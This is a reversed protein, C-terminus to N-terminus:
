LRASLPLERFLPAYRGRGSSGRWWGMNAHLCNRHPPPAPLQSFFILLFFHNSNNRKALHGTITSTHIPHIRLRRSFSLPRSVMYRCCRYISPRGSFRHMSLRCMGHATTKYPNGVVKTTQCLRPPVHHSTSFNLLQTLCHFDAAM